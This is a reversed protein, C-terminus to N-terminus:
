QVLFVPNKSIARYRDNQNGGRTTNLIKYCRCNLRACAYAGGGKHSHM